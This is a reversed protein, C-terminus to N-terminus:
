TLNLLTQGSDLNPLHTCGLSRFFVRWISQSPPISKGNETEAQRQRPWDTLCATRGNTMRTAYQEKKASVALPMAAPLWARLECLFNGVM